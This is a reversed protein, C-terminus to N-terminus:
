TLPPPAPAEEVQLYSVGRLDLWYRGRPHSIRILTDDCTPCRLITRADHAHLMMQGVRSVSGCSTCAARVTTMEFAFIEGLTGGAANGDLRREDM